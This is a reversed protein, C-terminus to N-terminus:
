ECVYLRCDNQDTSMQGITMKGTSILAAPMKDVPMQRCENEGCFYLKEDASMLYERLKDVSMQDVNLEDISMKDVTMVDVSLLDPTMKEVSM